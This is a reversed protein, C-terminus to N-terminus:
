DLEKIEANFVHKVNSFKIDSYLNFDMGKGYDTRWARYSANNIEYEGALDPGYPNIRVTNKNPSWDGLYEDKTLFDFSDKVYVGIKNIEISYNSTKINNGFPMKIENILKTIKGLAIVRFQCSALTGFIDDLPEISLVNRSINYKVSQYYYREFFPMLETEKKNNLKPQEIDPASRISDDIIGFNVCQNAMTPLILLKHASMEKIRKKLLIIANDVKDNVNKKSIECFRFENNVM